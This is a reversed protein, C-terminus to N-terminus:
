TLRLFYATAGCQLHPFQLDSFNLILVSGSELNDAKDRFKTEKWYGEFVTYDGVPVSYM